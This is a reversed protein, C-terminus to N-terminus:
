GYFNKLNVIFIFYIGIFFVSYFIKWFNLEYLLCFLKKILFCRGKFENNLFENVLDLVINYGLKGLLNVISNWVVESWIRVFLLGNIGLLYKVFIFCM